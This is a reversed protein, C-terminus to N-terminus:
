VTRVAVPASGEKLRRLLLQQSGVGASIGGPLRHQRSEELSTGDKGHRPLSFTRLPRCIEAKSAAYSDTPTCTSM